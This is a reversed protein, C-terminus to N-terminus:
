SFLGFADRLPSFRAIGALFVPLLLHLLNGFVFDIVLLEKIENRPNEVKIIFVMYKENGDLM